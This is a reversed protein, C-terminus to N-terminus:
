HHNGTDYCWKAIEAILQLPIPKNYPFQVAGKSSKYSKLQDAFHEIAKDGPYLGMHNKHAAFHIINTKQWFTPMKWSIREQAEPIATRITERVQNLIPQIEETQSAIYDDVTNITTGCFHNQNPNKFERGCNPCQWM